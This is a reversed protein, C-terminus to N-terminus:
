DGGRCNPMSGVSPPIGNEFLNMSWLLVTVARSAVDLYAGVLDCWDEADLSAALATSGLLDCFLM